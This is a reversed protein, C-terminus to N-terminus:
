NKSQLWWIGRKHYIYYTHNVCRQRHWLLSSTHEMTWGSTTCSSVLTM